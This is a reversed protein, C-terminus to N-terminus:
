RFSDIQVDDAVVQTRAIGLGVGGGPDVARPLM